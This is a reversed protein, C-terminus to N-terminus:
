CCVAVFEDLEEAVSDLGAVGEAAADPDAGPALPSTGSTVDVSGFSLFNNTHVM